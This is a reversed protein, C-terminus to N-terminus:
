KHASIFKKIFPEQQDPALTPKATQLMSHFAEHSLLEALHDVDADCDDLYRQRVSIAGKLTCGDRPEGTKSDYCAANRSKPFETKWESDSLVRIRGLADLGAKDDIGEMVAVKLDANAADRFASINRNLYETAKKVADNLKTHRLTYRVSAVCAGAVETKTETTAGDRFDISFDRVGAPNAYSVVKHKMPHQSEPTDNDSMTVSWPYETWTEHCQLTGGQKTATLTLSPEFGSFSEISMRKGYKSPHEIVRTVAVAQVKNDKGVTFVYSGINRFAGEAGPMTFRCEGVVELTWEDCSKKAQAMGVSAIFTTALLVAWVRIVTM